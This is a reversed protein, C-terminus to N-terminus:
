PELPQIEEVHLRTRQVAPLRQIEMDKIMWAEDLKRVSRVWLQRIPRGTHDRGEAQLMMNNSRAIWLRVSAYPGEDEPPASVDIIDCDFNFISAEGAYVAEPWWLYALTLDIWSIDTQQIPQALSTLPAPKLPTGTKYQLIAPTAHLITLQELPAGLADSITYRAQPPVAGWHADLEFGYTAVPVGRRRRVLLEGTIRVPDPPLQRTVGQLLATASLAARSAPAAWVPAHWGLVVCALAVKTFFCAIPSYAM